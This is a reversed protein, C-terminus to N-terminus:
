EPFILLAGKKINNRKFWGQNLEIAYKAKQSSKTVKLSYPFMEKFEILKRKEDFFGIDLPISTNKMWFYLQKKVKFIFLMGENKRIMRRFMLGKKRTEVKDAIEVYIEKGGIKITKKSLVQNLNGQSFIKQEVILFFLILFIQVTQKTIIFYNM